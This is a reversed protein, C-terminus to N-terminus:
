PKEGLPLLIDCGSITVAIPIPLAAYAAIIDADSTVAVKVGGRVTLDIKSGIFWYM